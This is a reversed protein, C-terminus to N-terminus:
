LSSEARLPKNGLDLKRLLLVKLRVAHLTALEPTTTLTCTTEDFTDPLDASLVGSAAEARNRFCEECGPRQVLKDDGGAIGAESGAAAANTAFRYNLACAWLRDRGQGPEHRM